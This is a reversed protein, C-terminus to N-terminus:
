NGIPRFWQNWALYIFMGALAAGWLSAALIIAKREIIPVAKWLVSREPLQNKM